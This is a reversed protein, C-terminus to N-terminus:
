RSETRPPSLNGDYRAIIERRSRVHLKQYIRKVYTGVTGWVIGLEQGIEKYTYGKVLLGLVEQERLGLSADETAQSVVSKLKPRSFADVVLRAITPSMPSGGASIERVAALLKDPHIPKVLYGHAGAALARFITEPDRYVTLMVIQTDPLSSSLQEVCEVGNLGPMNVDMIIVQPKIAPLEAIAKRGEAFQAVCRCDPSRQLVDAVIGRIHADDEVIAVDIKELPADNASPCDPNSGNERKM